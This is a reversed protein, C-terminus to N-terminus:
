TLVILKFMCIQERYWVFLIIGRMNQCYLSLSPILCGHPRRLYMLVLVRALVKQKFNVEFKASLLSCGLNSAFYM